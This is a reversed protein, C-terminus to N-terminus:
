RARWISTFGRKIESGMVALAERRKQKLSARLFSRAPVNKTSLEVAAPYYYRDGSPIGLEERTGTRIVVGFKGRKAKLAKIKLSDKLKRRRVPVLAKAVPLVVKAALRLAKRVIKKQDKGTLRGMKKQLRVDGVMRIDIQLGGGAM